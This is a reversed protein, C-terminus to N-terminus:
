AATRALLRKANGEFLAEKQSASLGSEQMKLLASEFYFFPFHSGFLIREPQLLEVLRAIIEIGEATAIDFYVEGAGALAQLQQPEDAGPRWNLLVLRTGPAQKLVAPLAALDVPPVPLLPSQTRQDELSVALQVILGNETALHLLEAFIPDAVKYGHYNPHLRIGPMRHVQSCRRVDEQWNPLSPNVSGFPALFDRGYRLCDAALRANVGAIDKHLIGDFSGVWAQGVNRKRLRSVLDPTEDGVLRRFPWRSLHTNTDIIV